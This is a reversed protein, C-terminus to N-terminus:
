KNLSFLLGEAVPLGTTAERRQAFTSSHPTQWMSGMSISPALLLTPGWTQFCLGTEMESSPCPTSESLLTWVMVHRGLCLLGATLLVYSRRQQDFDTLIASTAPNYDTQQKSHCLFSSNFNASCNTFM